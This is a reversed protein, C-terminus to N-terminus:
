LCRFAIYVHAESLDSLDVLSADLSLTSWSIQMSRQCTTWSGAPTEVSLRWCWSGFGPCRRVISRRLPQSANGTKVERAGFFLGSALLEFLSFVTFCMTFCM